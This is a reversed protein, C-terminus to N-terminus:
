EPAEVWFATYILGDSGLRDETRICGAQHALRKVERNRTSQDLEFFAQKEEATWQRGNALRFLDDFSYQCERNM